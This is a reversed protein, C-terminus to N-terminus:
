SCGVLVTAMQDIAVRVKSTDRRGNEMFVFVRDRGDTDRAVGALSVVDNLTGTKAWVQGRACRQGALTYRSRLTGTQGSRPMGDYAFAVANMEPDEYMKEVTAALTAAPMRNSRSLGSGDANVLGATPIDNAALVRRQTTLANAWTPRLGREKASLRLLYEAYTNHSVRLTTAVLESVPASWSASLERASAPTTGRGFVTVKIGNSTLARRFARGAALDNDTGSYGALTLGRVPQVERPVYSPKWGSANSPAPFATADVFLKVSTRKQAKLASATRAALTSLKSANLSPDGAGKLYINGRNATSQRATTVLQEAPDLTDLATFATLVKQTSAPMRTRSANHSWITEGSEPDVVVGSLHGRLYQSSAAGKLRTILAADDAASAPAAGGLALPVSLTLACTLALPLRSRM